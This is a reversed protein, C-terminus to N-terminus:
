VPPAEFVRAVHRGTTGKDVDRASRHDLAHIFIEHDSVDITLTGPTLTTSAGLLTLAREGHVDPSQSIFTPAIPLRPHLVARAVRVNSKIVQAMLWPIYLLFQVPRFRARDGWGPLNAAIAIAVVVGTGFHLVDFRGSLVYWAAVLLLTTIVVRKGDKHM